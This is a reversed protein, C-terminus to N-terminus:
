HHARSPGGRVPLRAGVGSSSRRRCALADYYTREYRVVVRAGVGGGRCIGKERPLRTLGGAGYHCTRRATGARLVRACDRVDALRGWNGAKPTPCHPGPTSKSRLPDHSQSRRPTTGWGVERTGRGEGQARGLAGCNRAGATFPSRSSGTSPRTFYPRGVPPGAWVTQAGDPYRIFTHRICRTYTGADGYARTSEGERAGRGSGMRLVRGAKIFGM